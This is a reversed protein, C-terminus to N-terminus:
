NLRDGLFVWSVPYQFTLSLNVNFKVFSFGMVKYSNFVSNPGKEIGMFFRAFGLHICIDPHKCDRHGATSAKGEIVAPLHSGWGIGNMEELWCGAVLWHQSLKSSNTHGTGLNGFDQKWAVPTPFLIIECVLHAEEMFWAASYLTQSRAPVRQIMGGEEAKGKQIAIFVRAM